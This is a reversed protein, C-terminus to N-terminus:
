AVSRKSSTMPVQLWKIIARWRSTREVRRHATAETEIAPEAPIPSLMHGLDSYGPLPQEAPAAPASTEPASETPEAQRQSATLITLSRRAYWVLVALIAFQVALSALEFWDGQIWDSIGGM